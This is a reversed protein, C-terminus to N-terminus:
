ILLFLILLCWVLLTLANATSSLYKFTKQKFPGFVGQWLAHESLIEFREDTAYELRSLVAQQEPLLLSRVPCEASLMANNDLLLKATDLRAYYEQVSEPMRRGELVNIAAYIYADIAHTLPTAGQEDRVRLDVKHELLLRIVPTPNKSMIVAKILHTVQKTADHGHSDHSPLVYNPNVGLKLAKEATSVILENIEKPSRGIGREANMFDSLGNWIAYEGWNWRLLIEAIEKPDGYSPSWLYSKCFYEFSNQGGPESTGMNNVNFPWLSIQQDILDALTRPAKALIAVEVLNNTFTVGRRSSATKLFTCLQLIPVQLLLSSQSSQSTSDALQLYQLFEEDEYQSTSRRRIAYLYFKLLSVYGFHEKQPGQKLNTRAFAKVTQHLFQVEYSLLDRGPPEKIRGLEHQRQEIPTDPQALEADKHIKLPSESTPAQNEEKRPDLPTRVIAEHHFTLPLSSPHDGDFHTLLSRVEILGGSISRILRETEDLSIETDSPYDDLDELDALRFATMFQVLTMPRISCMVLDFMVQSQRAYKPPVKTSILYAYFANLDEPLSELKEYLDDLRHGATFDGLLEDLILRVWLFVGKASFIIRSRFYEIGDQHRKSVRSMLASMRPNAKFEQDVVKRIDDTTHEHISIGPVADFSDLFLQEPRSSFCIKIRTRRRNANSSCAELIFKIVDKHPGVYEDLADLCLFIVIDHENQLVIRRFLKMLNSLEWSFLDERRAASFLRFAEIRLEPIDKLIQHLIEKLLGELSKQTYSGRDHFFFAAFSSKCGPRQISVRTTSDSYIKKMLTSKGSAPKGRIWFLPADSDLWTQFGLSENSYIWEFTDKFASEVQLLRHRTEPTYLDALIAQFEGSYIVGPPLNSRL